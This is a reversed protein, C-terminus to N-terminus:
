VRKSAKGNRGGEKFLPASIRKALDMNQEESGVIDAAEGLMTGLNWGSAIVNIRVGSAGHEASGQKLLLKM